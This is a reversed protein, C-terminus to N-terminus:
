YVWIGHNPFVSISLLGKKRGEKKLFWFYNCLDVYRLEEELENLRDQHNYHVGHDNTPSPRSSGILTMHSIHVSRQDSDHVHPRLDHLRLLDRFEGGPGQIHSKMLLSYKM